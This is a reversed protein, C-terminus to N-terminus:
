QWKANLQCSLLFLVIFSLTLIIQVMKQFISKVSHFIKSHCMGCFFMVSWYRVFDYHVKVRWIFYQHRFCFQKLKDNILTNFFNNLWRQKLVENIEINDCATCTLSLMRLETVKIAIYIFSNKLESVPLRCQSPHFGFLLWILIKLIHVDRMRM